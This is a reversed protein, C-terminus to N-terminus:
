SDPLQIDRQEARLTAYAQELRELLLQGGIPAQRSVVLLLPIQQLPQQQLHSELQPNQSFLQQMPALYNILYDARQRLLMGVAGEHSHTHRPKMALAPDHVASLIHPSYDYGSLMIVEQDYLSDPWRPAPTDARYYLNISIHALAQQGVFTHDQLDKKGAIGPWLHIDGDQLGMALRAIPLIRFDAELGAQHIIQQLLPIFLGAPEGRDTTYSYPPFEILGVSIRQQPGDPPTGARAPLSIFLASLLLFLWCQRIHM